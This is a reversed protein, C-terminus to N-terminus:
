KAEVGLKKYELGMRSGESEFLQQLAGMQVQLLQSLESDEDEITAESLKFHLINIGAKICALYHAEKPFGNLTSSIDKASATSFDGTPYEFYYAVGSGLTSPSYLLEGSPNWTWSPDTKAHGSYYISTDDLRCSYKEYTVEKAKRTIGDNGIVEIRIIRYDKDDNRKLEFIGSNSADTSIDENHWLESNSPVLDAVFSFADRYLNAHTTASWDGILSEIVGYTTMDAM